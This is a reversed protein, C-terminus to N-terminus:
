GRLLKTIWMFCSKRWFSGNMSMHSHVIVNRKLILLLLLQFIASFFLFLDRAKGKGSHSIIRSTKFGDYLGDNIYGEIVSNIGGPANTGLIIIHM